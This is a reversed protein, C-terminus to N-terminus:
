ATAKSKVFYRVAGAPLGRRDEVAEGARCHRKGHFAREYTQNRGADIVKGCLVCVLERLAGLVFLSQPTSSDGRGGSGVPPQDDSRPSGPATKEGQHRCSHKGCYNCTTM